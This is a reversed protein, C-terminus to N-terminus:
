DVFTDVSQFHAVIGGFLGNIPTDLLSFAAVVVISMLAAVLAYEIATAGATDRLMSRFPRM